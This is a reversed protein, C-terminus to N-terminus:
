VKGKLKKVYDFLVFYTHVAHDIIQSHSRQDNDENLCQRISEIKEITTELLDVSKRRKKKNSNIHKMVMEIPLELQKENM